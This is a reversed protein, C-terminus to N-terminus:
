LTFKWVAVLIWNSTLKKFIKVKLFIKMFYEHFQIVSDHSYHM